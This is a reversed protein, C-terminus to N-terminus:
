AFARFLIHITRSVGRENFGTDPAVTRLVGSHPLVHAVYGLEDKGNPLRQSKLEVRILRHWVGGGHWQLYVYHKPPPNPQFIGFYGPLVRGWVLVERGPTAGLAEAPSHITVVQRVHIERSGSYSAAETDTGQFDASASTNNYPRFTLSAKGSASTTRPISFVVDTEGWSLNVQEGALPLGSAQDTLRVTMTVREGYTVWKSTVSISLHTPSPTTAQPQAVAVACFAGLTLASISLAVGTTKWRSM